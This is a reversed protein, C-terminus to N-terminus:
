WCAQDKSAPNYYAPTDLVLPNLGDPEQRNTTNLEEQETDSDQIMGSEATDFPAMENQEITATCDPEELTGDQGNEPFLVESTM